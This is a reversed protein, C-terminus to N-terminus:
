GGDFAPHFKALHIKAIHRPLPHEFVVAEDGFRTLGDAKAAGGSGSFAGDDVQEGAVVVDVSSGDEDVAVVQEIDLLVAQALLDADHQLFGKQEGIRHQVVQAVGAEFGAFGVADFGGLAGVGVVEDQAQGVAVVGQEGFPAAVEALALALQEGDGAHHHGVGAQHNQIFGGAVDIGAGLGVDLGGEVAEHGPAGAEDDGVAETGDAVGVFDEDEVGSGNHFLAGM